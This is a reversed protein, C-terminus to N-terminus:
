LAAMARRSMFSVSRASPRYTIAHARGSPLTVHRRTASAPKKGHVVQRVVGYFRLQAM